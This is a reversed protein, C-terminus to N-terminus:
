KRAFKAARAEQRERKERRKRDAESEPMDQRPPCPLAAPLM